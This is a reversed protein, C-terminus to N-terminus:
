KRIKEVLPQVLLFTHNETYSTCFKIDTLINISLRINTDSSHCRFQTSTNEDHIRFATAIFTGGLIGSNHLCSPHLVFLLIYGTIVSIIVIVVIGLPKVSTPLSTPTGLGSGCQECFKASSKNQVGCEPCFM